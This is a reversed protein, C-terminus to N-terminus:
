LSIVRADAGPGGPRIEVRANQCLPHARLTAEVGAFLRGADPGYLFLTTESPDTENGDYEGLGGEEIAARLREELSELDHERYVHEPLGRGDLHVLVAQQAGGAGQPAASRGFLRGLFGM